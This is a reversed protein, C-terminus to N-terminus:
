FGKIQTSSQKNDPCTLNKFDCQYLHEKQWSVPIELLDRTGTIGQGLFLLLAICNLVTHIVRWRNSRDKYIDEVIALSFVMLLAAVLGIYYHSSYWRETLRYVGDQAGLIVLGMGTLTAFIGRWQKQRARYLLVLSAITLIFMLIIFVVQFTQLTGEKQKDIFGKYGYVVSYALAVLMVGVVTGTLWRGTRFHEAGVVPPIKSKGGEKSHLRRQRTQWALNVAIGLLPFVCVVALIPHILSIFDEFKM